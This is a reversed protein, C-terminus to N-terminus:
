TPKLTGGLLLHSVSRAEMHGVERTDFSAQSVRRESVNSGDGSGQIHVCGVQKNKLGLTVEGLSCPGQVCSQHM